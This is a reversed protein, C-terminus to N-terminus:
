EYSQRWECTAANGSRRFTAYNSL